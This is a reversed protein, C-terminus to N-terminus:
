RKGGKKGLLSSSMSDLNNLGKMISEDSTPKHFAKKFSTPWKKVPMGTQIGGAYLISTVNKLPPKYIKQVYPKNSVPIPRAVSPMPTPMIVQKLFAPNQVIQQGASVRQIDGMPVIGLSQNLTGISGPQQGVYDTRNQLRSLTQRDQLQRKRLDEAKDDRDNVYQYAAQNDPDFM